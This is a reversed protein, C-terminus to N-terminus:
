RRGLEEQLVQQASPGPGQVRRYDGDSQLEWAQLTDALYLELSERVVRAKLAGEVPFAVEVRNFCNREMWDASSCFALGEGGAHFFYVRHHELFRGVISRVRINESVGVVGPRLRCVGRVILDISVGAQSVAYLARIVETETLSNMKAVIRAPRGARAERAEADILELVRRHLTFPAELLKNLPRVQGLGTLQMFLQHVDEGIEPRATLLGFDTYTRATDMHYNGTGLHVYRRLADGERRVIMMLKAHTKKGVIGYVLQAGSEQLREALHINDAEDFRARLEVLVTVDKGAEAAAILQDVVPSNAGTRYLTQKIALVDPDEAAQRVLDVVTSFSQFPHHVLIDRTKLEAFLDTGQPVALSAVFPPYKLDPRDIRSIISSLRGLNVPGNVQYLDQEELEFQKLLLQCIEDPCNAAVELRVTAGYRRAPLEGQMALLLNDIDEEDVSLDGDRTTRFQFCGTVQMGPFLWDMHHHIVSSILVFHYGGGSIEPPLMLVRPVSRPVQVVAIRGHRGFADEGDLTVIFNLIKNLVKPFPHTPDLGIPSLVPLVQNEFQQRIWEQQQPSWDSRRYIFIGEAALSPLLEENLVRYQETVLEHAIESIRRLTEDASLGDPGREPLSFAVQQRLRAARIEFFEDLNTSCISLFRLRELIPTSPAKAQALVRENFALQSLERNFFLASEATINHEM